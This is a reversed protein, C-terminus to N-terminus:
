RRVAPSSPRTTAPQAPASTAPRPRDTGATATRIGLLAPAHLAWEELLPWVATNREAIVTEYADSGPGAGPPLDSLAEQASASVTDLRRTVAALVSLQWGWRPQVIGAPLRPLHQEGSAVLRAAILALPEFADWAEADRRVEAQQHAEDDYPVGSPDTHTDIRSEWAEQLQTM